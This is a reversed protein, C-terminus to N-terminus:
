YRHLESSQNALQYVRPVAGLAHRADILKHGEEALLLVESLSYLQFTNLSRSYTVSMNIYM